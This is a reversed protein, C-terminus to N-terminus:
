KKNIARYFGSDKTIQMPKEYSVRAGLFQKFEILRKGSIIERVNMPTSLMYSLLPDIDSVVMHDIYREAQVDTFCESLIKEGNNLHFREMIPDLVQLLPDFAKALTEIEKLHFTSMTSAYLMGGPKLVRSMETIAKPIDAVHYLMHNAIILDFENDHFPISQVDAVLFKIGGCCENIKGSAENVMGLSLDTLTIKWSEPIRNANRLWLAGDGCGVELIRMNPQKELQEFFWRHWGEKNVSFRDYLEIRAKLRTATQYQEVWDRETNVANILKFLNVWDVEKGNLLAIVEDITKIITQSHASKNLIIEKQVRLSSLLDNDPILNEHLLRKIKDLSLGIYKLTQIQQLKYLDNKNYLRVSAHNYQSPTLLGIQDYYRLTRVTLGSKQAIQGTTHFEHETNM